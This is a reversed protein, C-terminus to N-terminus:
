SQAGEDVVQHIQNLSMGNRRGVALLQRVAEAVEVRSSDVDAVVAGRGRRVQLIGEDRLAAYARLVTHMNVSLSDALDRAPPLREGAGLEGRAIAGRISAALQDYLAASSNPDVRLLM